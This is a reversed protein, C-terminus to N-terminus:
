QFRCVQFRLLKRWVSESNRYANGYQRCKKSRVCCFRINRGECFRRVYRGWWCYIRRIGAGGPDNWQQDDCTRRYENRLFLRRYYRWQCRSGRRFLCVPGESKNKNQKYNDNQYGFVAPFDLTIQSNTASANCVVSTKARNFVGRESYGYAKLM